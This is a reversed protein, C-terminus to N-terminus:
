KMQKLAESENVIVNAPPSVFFGEVHETANAFIKSQDPKVPEDERLPCDVLEEVISYLPEVGQKQILKLFRIQWDFKKELLEVTTTKDDEKTSKTSFQCFSTPKKQICHRSYLQHFTKSVLRQM